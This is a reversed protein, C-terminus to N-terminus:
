TMRPRHSADFGPDRWRKHLPRIIARHKADGGFPPGARCAGVYTCSCLYLADVEIPGGGSLDMVVYFYAIKRAWPGIEPQCM